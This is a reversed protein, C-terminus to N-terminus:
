LLRQRHVEVGVSQALPVATPKEVRVTVSHILSHTQLIEQAITVALREVLLCDGRAVIRGIEEAVQAYSVTQRLDDQEASDTVDLQMAVSIVIEQPTVREHPYIGLIGQLQLKTIFVTDM